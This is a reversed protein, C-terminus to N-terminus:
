VLKRLLDAVPRESIRLYDNGPSLERAQASLLLSACLRAVILDPLLERALEDLPVTEEYGVTVDAAARHPDDVSLMAYACAIALEAVTITHVMDGFDILGVLQPQGDGDDRVLLNHDNGDNHIVSKRLEGLRPQVRTSFADLGALVLPRLDADILHALPKMELLRAMDWVIPRHAGPHDFSRFIRDLRGMVRGIQTRLDATSEELDAIPRGDLYSVVRARLPEGSRGAVSCVTNGGLDQVVRPVLAGLDTKELHHLAALQCEIRLPESEGPAIKMVFRAGDAVELLFNRDIEGALETATAVIGFKEEAWRM